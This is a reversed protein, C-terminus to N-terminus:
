GLEDKQMEFRITAFSKDFSLINQLMEYADFLQYVNQSARM